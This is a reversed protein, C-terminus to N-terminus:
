PLKTQDVEAIEQDKEVYERKLWGLLLKLKPSQSQSQVKM